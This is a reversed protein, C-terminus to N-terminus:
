QWTILRSGNLIGAEAKNELNYLRINDGSAIAILKGTPDLRIDANENEVPQEFIINKSSVNIVIAWLKGRDNAKQAIVAVLDRSLNGVQTILLQATEYLTQPPINSGSQKIAQAKGTDAIYLLMDGSFAAATIGTESNDIKVQSNDAPYKIWLTTGIDDRTNSYTTYAIKDGSPSSAPLISSEIPIHRTIQKQSGNFSIFEGSFASKNKTKFCNVTDAELTPKLCPLADATLGFLEKSQEFDWSMVKNDGGLYILKAQSKDSKTTQFQTAQPEPQRSQKAPRYILWGATGAVALTAVILLTIQSPRSM